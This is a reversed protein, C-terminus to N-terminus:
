LRFFICCTLYYIVANWKKTGKLRGIWVSPMGDPLSIYFSNLIKRFEKDKQAIVIGHADTASILLNQKKGSTCNELVLEIASEINEDFLKVQLVKIM